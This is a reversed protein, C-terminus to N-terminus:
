RGDGNLIFDTSTELGAAIMRVVDASPRAHNREIRRLYRTTIGALAALQDQTMERMRRKGAIRAGMTEAMADENEQDQEGALPEMNDGTPEATM